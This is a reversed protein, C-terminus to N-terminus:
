TSRPNPGGRLAASSLSASMAVSKSGSGLSSAASSTTWGLRAKMTAAAHSRLSISSAPRHTPWTMLSSPGDKTEMISGTLLVSLPPVPVDRVRLHMQLSPM